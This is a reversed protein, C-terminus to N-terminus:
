TGDAAARIAAIDIKGMDLMAHMARGSREVDPDVLLDGIATPIIQWSVGFPDKLWGSQGPEGGNATLGEWLADVEEQTDVNVFFSLSETFGFAPGGNFAQYPQGDIEFGVSMVSGEEYPTGTGWYNVTVIKAGEFLSVYLNAAEEAKDDFWMFPCIKYM